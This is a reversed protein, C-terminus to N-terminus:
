ESSAMQVGFDDSNTTPSVLTYDPSSAFGTARGRYILVRGSLSRATFRGGVALDQLGDGDLDGVLTGEGSMGAPMTLTVTPAVAFAGSSLHLFGPGFGRVLDGLGDGNVDGLATLWSAQVALTPPAAVLGAASGRFLVQSWQAGQAQRVLLDAYGDRNVDGVAIAGGFLTATSDPSSLLTPTSFGTGTGWWVRVAGVLDSFGLALDIHGDGNFDASRVRSPTTSQPLPVSSLTFSNSASLGM